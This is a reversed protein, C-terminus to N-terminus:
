EAERKREGFAFACVGVWLIVFMFLGAYIIIGRMEAQVAKSTKAKKRPFAKTRGNCDMPCVLWLWM